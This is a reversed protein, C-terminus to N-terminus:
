RNSGCQPMLCGMRRGRDPPGACLHAIDRCGSTAQNQGYSVACCRFVVCALSFWGPLDAVLRGPLQHTRCLRRTLLNPIRTGRLAGV